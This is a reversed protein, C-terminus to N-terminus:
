SEAEREKVGQKKRKKKFKKTQNNTLQNRLPRFIKIQTLINNPNTKSYKNCGGM